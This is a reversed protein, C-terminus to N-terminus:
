WPPPCRRGNSLSPKSIGSARHDANGDGPEAAIPRVVASSICGATVKCAPDAKRLAATVSGVIQAAADTLVLM